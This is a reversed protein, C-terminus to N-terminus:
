EQEKTREAWQFGCVNCTRHIHEIRPCGMGLCHDHMFIFNASNPPVWKMSISHSGCKDCAVDTSLPPLDEVIPAKDPIGLRDSLFFDSMKPDPDHPAVVPPDAYVEVGSHSVPRDKFSSWFKKM